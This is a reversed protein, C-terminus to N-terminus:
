SRRRPAHDRPRRLDDPRFTQDDRSDTRMEPDAYGEAILWLGLSSSVTRVSGPAFRDLTVGDIEREPPTRKIRVKM